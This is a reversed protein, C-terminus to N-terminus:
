KLQSHLDSNMRMYGVQREELTDLATVIYAYRVDDMYNPVLTGLASRLTNHTCLIAVFGETPQSAMIVPLAMLLGWAKGESFTYQLEGYALLYAVEGASACTMARARYRPQVPGYLTCEQKILGPMNRDYASAVNTPTRAQCVVMNSTGTQATMRDSVVSFCGGIHISAYATAMEVASGDVCGVTNFITAIAPM